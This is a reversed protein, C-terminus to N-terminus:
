LDRTLYPFIQLKEKDWVNSTYYIDSEIMKRVAEISEAECIIMSGIMKKEADPSAISEPTLLAGGVKWQKSNHLDTARALHRERVSLRRQLADPDTMDPAWVVFKYLTPESAISM